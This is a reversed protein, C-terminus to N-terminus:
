KKPQTININGGYEPIAPQNEGRKLAALGNEIWAEGSQQTLLAKNSDALANAFAAGIRLGTFSGPGKYFIIGKIDAWGKGVMELQELVTKHLTVSLERHAQWKKYALREGDNYLGIEAEPNDTRVTLTM